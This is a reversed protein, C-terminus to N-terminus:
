SGRLDLSVFMVRPKLLSLVDSGAHANDTLKKLEVGGPRPIPIKHINIPHGFVEIYPNFDRLSDLDLGSGSRNVDVTCENGLVVAGDM